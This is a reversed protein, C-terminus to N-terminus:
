RFVPRIEPSEPSSFHLGLSILSASRDSESPSYSRQDAAPEVRANAEILLQAAAGHEGKMAYHLPQLGMSDQAHVTARHRLLMSLAECHGRHAALHSPQGGGDSQRADPMAQRGM